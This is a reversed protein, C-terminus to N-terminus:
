QRCNVLYTGQVITYRGQLGAPLAVREFNDRRGAERWNPIAQYAPLGAPLDVRAEPGVRNVGLRENDGADTVLMRVVTGASGGPPLIALSDWWGDTTVACHVRAVRGAAAEAAGIGAAALSAREAPKLRAVEQADLLRSVGVTVTTGATPLSGCGALTVSALAIAGAGRRM